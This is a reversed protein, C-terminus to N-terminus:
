CTPLRKKSRRLNRMSSRKLARQEESNKKLIHNQADRMSRALKLFEVSITINPLASM